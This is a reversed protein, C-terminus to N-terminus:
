LFQTFDLIMPEMIREKPDCAADGILDITMQMRIKAGPFYFQVAKTYAELDSISNGVGKAVAKMCDAFSGGQAVAQAFEEDQKCFDTLARRVDNKMASEKQSFPGNQNLKNIAQELYENL